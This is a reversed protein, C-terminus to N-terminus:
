LPHYNHMTFIKNSVKEKEERLEHKLEHLEREMDEIKGNVESSKKTNNALWKNEVNMQNIERQLKAKAENTRQLQNKLDEQM